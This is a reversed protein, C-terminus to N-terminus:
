EQLCAFGSTGKAQMAFRVEEGDALTVPRDHGPLLTNVRPPLGPPIEEDKTVIWVIRLVTNPNSLLVDTSGDAVYHPDIPFGDSIEYTKPLPM